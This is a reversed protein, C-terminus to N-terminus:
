LRGSAAQCGHTGRVDRQGRHHQHALREPRQVDTDGDCVRVGSVAPPGDRVDAPLRGDLEIAAALMALIDLKALRVNSLRLCPLRTVRLRSADQIPFIELTIAELAEEGGGCLHLFTLLESTLAMRRGIWTM